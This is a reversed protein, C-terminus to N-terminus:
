GRPPGAKIRRRMAAPDASEWDAEIWWTAGAAAYAATTAAAAQPDDRSTSGQAVIDFAVGGSEGRERAVWAAIAAVDGPLLRPTGDPGRAQAVVGDWRLSRRMSRESPWLGVVWLPIRPQRIPVPRFTMPGFRFHRGDYAFPEGTWLGALIELAEDLREARVRADTAEGVNGFGADDTAGLGVPLVLRGGSLRDVTVSERALKWPRRRSPPTVIAGLTARSTRMAMAALIVWPDYTDGPSVAIGDWTFVGDWGAAEAEAALDAQERPEGGTVIIGYRM